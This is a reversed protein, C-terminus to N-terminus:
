PGQELAAEGHLGPQAAHGPGHGSGLAGQRHAHRRRTGAITPVGPQAFMRRNGVWTFIERVVQAEAFQLIYQAEGGGDQKTLYRYGYPAGALVSVRGSRAAYLRGRRSRERIKVREYEAIMGQLQLPLRGEPSTDLEHNLFVVEVGQRRLEDVVVMQYPYDRALRDPCEIYLRDIAGTAVTDRLRELAPRQLTEGSYGDDAFQLERPVTLGDASIRRHLLDLQSAITDDQAQQETSVRAYM